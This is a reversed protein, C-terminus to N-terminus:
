GSHLCGSGDLSCHSSLAKCTALGAARSAWGFHRKGVGLHPPSPVRTIVWLQLPHCLSSGCGPCGQSPPSNIKYNAATVWEGQLLFSLDPKVLLPKSHLATQLPLDAPTPVGVGGLVVEQAGQRLVHTPAKLESCM